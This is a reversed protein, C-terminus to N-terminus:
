KRGLFDLASPPAGTEVRRATLRVAEVDAIYQDVIKKLDPSSPDTFDLLRRALDYFDSEQQRMGQYRQESKFTYALAVVLGTWTTFVTMFIKSWQASGDYLHVLVPLLVASLLSWIIRATHLRHHAAAQNKWYVLTGKLRSYHETVRKKQAGLQAANEIWKPAEDLKVQNLFAQGLPVLTAVIGIALIALAVAWPDGDYYYAASGAGAALALM